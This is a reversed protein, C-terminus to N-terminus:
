MIQSSSTYNRLFSVRMTTFDNAVDNDSWVMLNSVRSLLDVKHERSFVKRYKNRWLERGRLVMSRKKDPGLEDYTELFIKAANAIDENDPYVQVCRIFVVLNCKFRFCKRNEFRERRALDPFHM